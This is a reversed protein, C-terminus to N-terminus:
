CVPISTFYSFVALFNPTSNVDQIDWQIKTVVAFGVETSHQYFMFSFPLVTVNLDMFGYFKILMM